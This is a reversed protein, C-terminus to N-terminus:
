QGIAGRSPRLVEPPLGAIGKNGQRTIDVFGQQRDRLWVSDAGM